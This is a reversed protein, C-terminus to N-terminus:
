WKDRLQLSTLYEKSWRDWFYQAIQSVLRWRKGLPIKEDRYDPELVAFSQRQILFHAPTLPNLDTVDDSLSLMPRSNSIAEIKCLPTSMEVFTLIQQSVVRRLHWKVSKVGAEWLSGFHPAKATNFHWETGM